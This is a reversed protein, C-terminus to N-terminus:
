RGPLYRGRARPMSPVVSATMPFEVPGTNVIKVVNGSNPTAIKCFFPRDLGDESYLEIVQKTTDPGQLIEIRANIPRGDTELLIEAAEVSPDMPYTRLAGGQIYQALNWHDGAPPEVYQHEVQATIPFEMQGINRVAVTYPTRPNALVASFPRMEGDESFARVQIPTNGAGNWVEIGAELPRGETNLTVEVNEISPNKYSWTRLSDGQIDIAPTSQGTPVPLGTRAPAPAM